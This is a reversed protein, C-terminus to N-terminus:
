ERPLKRHGRLGLLGMLGCLVLYGLTSVVPISKAPKQSKFQTQEDKAKRSTVGTEHVSVTNTTGLISRLTQLLNQFRTEVLVKDSIQSFSVTVTCNSVLAKTTYITGSLIGGCTGGVDDIEYGYDATITFSVTDNEAVPQLSQPSISGNPGANPTVTYSATSAGKSDPSYNGDPLIKPLAYMSDTILAHMLVDTTAFAEPSCLEWEISIQQCRDGFNQGGLHSTLAWYFYETAMCDYECSTDDYHYWADEPYKAPVQEFKGGRAVDMADTMQSDQTGFVLPYAIAWGADTMLHWIEELSADFVGMESSDPHTEEGYLNQLVMSDLVYFPIVSEMQEDVNEFEEETAAMILAAQKEQLADYVAADDPECDGNNDIYQAFINAAHIIKNDATNQTAFVSLDFVKIEKPYVQAFGQPADAGTTGVESIAGAVLCTNTWGDQASFFFSLLLPLFSFRLRRM